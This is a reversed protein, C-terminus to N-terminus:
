ILNDASDGCNGGERLCVSIPSSPRETTRRAPQRGANRRCNMLVCGSCLGHALSQWGAPLAALGAFRVAARISNWLLIVKRSLPCYCAPQVPMYTVRGRESAKERETWFASPCLFFGPRVTAFCKNLIFHGLPRNDNESDKAGSRLLRLESRRRGAKWLMHQGTGSDGKEGSENHSCLLFAGHKIPWEFTGPGHKLPAVQ